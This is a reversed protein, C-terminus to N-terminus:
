KHKRGNTLLIQRQKIISKLQEPELHSNIKDSSLKIDNQVDILALSLQEYKKSGEKSTSTIFAKVEKQKLMEELQEFEIKQYDKDFKLYGGNNMEIVEEATTLKCFYFECSRMKRTNSNPVSVVHAPNILTIIAQNGFENSFTQTETKPNDYGTGYSDPNITKTTIKKGYGDGIAGKGEIMQNETASIIGIFKPTGTHLGRSCDKSGDEDCQERPIACVTGVVYKMKQTHADTFVRPDDTKKVMRYTVFYGSPTILIKQDSLYDFLKTRAIPNPNLLCLSWFNLLPQIHEEADLWENLKKVLLDPMSIHEFGKLAIGGDKSQVLLSSISVNGSKKVVKYGLKSATKKVKELTTKTKTIKTKIEKKVEKDKSKVEKKIAKKIGKEKIALVKEEQKKKEFLSLIEEKKTKSNIKNFLLVKNTISKAEEVTVQKSYKKGDVVVIFNKGVTMAKITEKAM